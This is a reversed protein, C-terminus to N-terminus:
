LKSGSVRVKGTPASRAIAFTFLSATGRPRGTVGRRATLPIAPQHAAVQQSDSPGAIQNSISYGLWALWEAVVRLIYNVTFAVGIGM